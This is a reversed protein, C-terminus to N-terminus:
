AMNNARIILRNGDGEADEPEADALTELVDLDPRKFVHVHQINEYYGPHEENLKNNTDNCGYYVMALKDTKAQVLMRIYDKAMELRTKGDSSM